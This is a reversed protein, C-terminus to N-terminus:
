NKSSDIKRFDKARHPTRDKEVANNRNDAINATKQM